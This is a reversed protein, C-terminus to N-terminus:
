NIRITFLLPVVAALMLLSITISVNSGSGYSVNVRPLVGYKETGHCYGNYIPQAPVGRWLLRCRHEDLRHKADATTSSNAPSWLREAVAGIYPFLRPIINTADVYEAWLAAEGGLVLQAEEATINPLIPECEYYAKWSEGYNIYNLYWCSSLLVQYGGKLAREMYPEWPDDESGGKWVQLIVDKEPVVGFEIPDHWIIPHGGINKLNELVRETYYQQVEKMETFNNNRMFEAIVPSSQWCAYYVEDMGLHVYKDKSVSDVIEKLFDTMFTYTNEDMPNLIEYAAHNPFNATGPNVGDGFCPTILSPFAKGFGQTHGPTDFELIVRIGRDRAFDIIHKVDSPQYVLEPLYAGKESLEPYKVSVFPFSQDDVIHWHLVNLKNYSLSEIVQEIIAVPLYHRASDIMLGRHPFRPHDRIVTENAFRHNSEGDTWILQSFTELGRLAGWVTKATIKARGETSESSVTLNYAEYDMDTDLQPYEDCFNKTPENSIEIEVTSLIPLDNGPTVTLNRFLFEWSYRQMARNLIACDNVNAKYSFSDKPAISVVNESKAWYNPLPWLSGPPSPTGELPLRAALQSLHGQASSSLTLLLLIASILKLCM